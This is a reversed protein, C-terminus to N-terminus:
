NVAKLKLIYAIMELRAANLDCTKTDLLALWQLAMRGQYINETKGTAIVRHALQKLLTAYRVDDIAERFGEWQITDIPRDIGPYVLNFSRFNYETGIFDNWPSGNLKYNFTGDFDAMYLDLGHIRRVFDPNEPGTHPGAYNTIRGGFAHWKDAAEKFYRGGYNVFDENYGGYILHKDTGTTYTKLGKDHIYKWPKRQAVLLRMAPEDWGFCYINTLGLKETLLASGADVRRILATPLPQKAIPNGTVDASTMWDYPPIAPIAGFIADTRLGAQRYIEMQSALLNEEGLILDPVHPYLVNHQRMNTYENLLRRKAKVLDGGNKKVYEGLRNHNYIGAYYTRELDYNTKPDPLSFPLVRVELPLSGQPQGDVTVAIQGTYLGAADAPAAVTIWLQKCEGATLTFPRLTTADAVPEFKDNFPININVPNSIWVYAPGAPAPYDVRLYNDRSRTNVQILTEDNLLLEPVLERGTSDAFYSYWATGAQYWVKVIKLDVAVAPIKGQKGVLDSVQLEVRQAAVFPYFVVAAPEYEGQAVVLQIPAALSGDVPYAFQTRKTNSVAPVTYTIFPVTPRVLQPNAALDKAVQLAIAVEQAATNDLEGSRYKAAVATLYAKFQPQQCDGAASEVLRLREDARATGAFVLLILGGALSRLITRM